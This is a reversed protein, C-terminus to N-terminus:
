YTNSQTTPAPPTTTQGGAMTTMKKAGAKMDSGLMAAGLSKLPNRMVFGGVAKLAPVIFAAKVIEDHRDAVIDFLSKMM